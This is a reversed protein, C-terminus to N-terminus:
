ACNARKIKGPTCTQPLAAPTIRPSITIAAPIGYRPKGHGAEDGHDNQEFPPGSCSAVPAIASANADVTDTNQSNPWISPVLAAARVMPSTLHHLAEVPSRVPKPTM